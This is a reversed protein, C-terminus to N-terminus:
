GVGRHLVQDELALVLLDLAQELAVGVGGREREVLVKIAEPLGAFDVLLVCELKRRIRLLELHVHLADEDFRSRIDRLRTRPYPPAARANPPLCRVSTRGGASKYPRLSAAGKRAEEQRWSWRRPRDR